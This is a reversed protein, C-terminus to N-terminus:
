ADKELLKVIEQWCQISSREGVSYDINETDEEEGEM